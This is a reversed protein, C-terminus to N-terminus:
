DFLDEVSNMFKVSIAVLERVRGVAGYDLDVRESLALLEAEGGFRRTPRDGVFVLAFPNLRSQDVDDDL